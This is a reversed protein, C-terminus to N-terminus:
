AFASHLFAQLKDWFQRHLHCDSHRREPVIWLSVAKSDAARLLREGHEVPVTADNEGHILFVPASVAAINNEPAIADLRAGIKYEVFRFLAPTIFQPAHRSQLDDRMIDGPHAFAGVTAACTIREDHAAAYIAAAGGISLGIVGVGNTGGNKNAYIYDVAARIDEAFKLMSSFSDKDSSGHNRSDFAFLNYGAKRLRRIYPLCREVNRGWGHVLVLTPAATEADAPVWWGYLSRSKKTPFRVEEFPIDFDGPTSKHGRRPNKFLILLGKDLLFLTAAAAPVIWVLTMM